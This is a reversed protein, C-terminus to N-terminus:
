WLLTLTYTVLCFRSSLTEKGTADLLYLLVERETDRGERADDVELGSIVNVGRQVEVFPLERIAKLLKHTIWKIQSKAYQRTSTKM